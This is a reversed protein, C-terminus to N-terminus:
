TATRNREADGKADMRLGRQLIAPLEEAGLLHM